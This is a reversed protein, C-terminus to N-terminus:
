PLSRDRHSILEGLAQAAAERSYRHEVLRRGNTVLRAWLAPDDLLRAVAQTFAQPTDALLIDQGDTVALGEAGLSTSVVPRGYAMSELIKIRTGGGFRLPVLTVRARQYYPETSEVAGTVTVDAAEGLAVVQPPPNFGVIWLRLPKSLAARLRPLIDGVLYDAGDANPPYNMAGLFVIDHDAADTPVSLIDKATVDITNPLVGIRAGRARRRALTARDRDSCVLVQDASRLAHDELRRTHWIDLLEQATRIWGRRRRQHPVARLRAITEIDDFDVIVGDGLLGRVSGLQHWIAHTSLRFCFVRDFRDPWDALTALDADTFVLEARNANNAFLAAFMGRMVSGDASAHQYNPAVPVAVLRKVLGAGHQLRRPLDDVPQAPLAVLMSVDGHQALGSLHSWARREAGTGNPNPLCPTIFLLQM